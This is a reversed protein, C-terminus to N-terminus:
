RHGTEPPMRDLILFGRRIMRHLVARHDDENDILLTMRSVPDYIMLDEAGVGARVLVYSDVPADWVNMHDAYFVAEAKARLDTFQERLIDAYIRVSDVMLDGQQAAWRDLGPRRKPPRPLQGFRAFVSPTLDSLRLRIRRGAALLYGEPPGGRSPKAIYCAVDLDRWDFHLEVGVTPFMYAVWTLLTGREITKVDCEETRQLFAFEDFTLRLFEERSLVVGAGAV